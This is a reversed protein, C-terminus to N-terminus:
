FSLAASVGAGRRIIMPAALVRGPGRGRRRRGAPPKVQEGSSSHRAADVALLVVGVAAAAGGIGLALGGLTDSLHGLDQLSRDNNPEEPDDFVYPAGPCRPGSPCADNRVARAYGAAFSLGISGGVVGLATGTGVLLAGALRMRSVGRPKATAVPAPVVAGPEPPPEEESVTGAREGGVAGPARALTAALTHLPAGVELAVVHPEEVSGSREVVAGSKDRAEIYYQLSTGRVESAPIRAVKVPGRRKMEVAAFELQGQARFHLFVRVGYTVPTVVWIDLPQGPPASDVPAHRWRKPAQSSAAEGGQAAQQAILRDIAGMVEVRERAKAPAEALYKKYYYLQNNRDGRAEYARAIAILLEPERSLLYAKKLESLAEDIRGDRLAALGQRRHEEALAPTQAPDAAGPTGPDTVQARVQASVLLSVVQLVLALLHLPRRPRHVPAAPDRSV